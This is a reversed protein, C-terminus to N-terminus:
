SECSTAMMQAPDSGQAQNSPKSFVEERGLWWCALHLQGVLCYFAFFVALVLGLVVLLVSVLSLNGAERLEGFLRFVDDSILARPGLQPDLLPGLRTTLLSAAEYFDGIVVTMPTLGLVTALAFLIPSCKKRAVVFLAVGPMSILYPLFDVFAYAFDNPTSFGTLQGAYNSEAVVFPFFKSLLQGGYQAKLALERVEGGTLYCGLVHLLEHVPVYVHWLVILWFLIWFLSYTRKALLIDEFTQMVLRLVAPVARWPYLWFERL